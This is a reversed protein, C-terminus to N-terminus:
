PARPRSADPLPSDLTLDKSPHHFHLTANPDGTITWGLVHVFFHHLNCVLTM